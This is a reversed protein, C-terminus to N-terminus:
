NSCRNAPTKLADSVFERGYNCRTRNTRGQWEMTRELFQPAWNFPVSFGAKIAVGERYCDDNVNLLHISHGGVVPRAPSRPDLKISRRRSPWPEAQEQTLFENALM